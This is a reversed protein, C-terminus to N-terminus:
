LTQLFSLDFGKPILRMAAAVAKASPVVQLECFARFVLATVTPEQLEQLVFICCSTSSKNMKVKDEKFIKLIGSAIEADEAERERMSRVLVSLEKTLQIKMDKVM